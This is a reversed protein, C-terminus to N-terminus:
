ADLITKFLEYEICDSCIRSYYIHKKESVVGMKEIREVNIHKIDNLREIYYANINYAKINDNNLIFECLKNYGKDKLKLYCKGSDLNKELEYFTSFNINKNFLEFIKENKESTTKAM